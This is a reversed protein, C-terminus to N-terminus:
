GKTEQGNGRNGQGMEVSEDSINDATRSVPINEKELKKKLNAAPICPVLLTQPGRVRLQQKTWAQMREIQTSGFEVASMFAKDWTAQVTPTLTILHADVHGIFVYFGELAVLTDYAESGSFGGVEDAPFLKDKLTASIEHGFEGKARYKLM